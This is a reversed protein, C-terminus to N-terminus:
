RGPTVSELKEKVLAVLHAPSIPKVVYTAGARRAESALVEDHFGTVIIAPLREPSLLLLQLGNFGGLRLDAIILDPREAAVADRGERYTATAIVAYGALSLLQRYGARAADDDEVILIKAM